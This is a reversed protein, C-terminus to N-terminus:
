RLHIIQINDWHTKFYEALLRRHCCEPKDESCLFVSGIIEDKNVSTIINREDLLKLYETTYGGWNIRHSKYNKLIEETPAFDPHHTYDCNLIERLFYKLDDKKSFAALQSINNLRVDILRKINNEKLLSFFREASKGTFGITYINNM